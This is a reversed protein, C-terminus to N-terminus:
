VTKGKVARILKPKIEPAIVWKVRKEKTGLHRANVRLMPIKADFRQVIHAECVYADDLFLAGQLADLLNKLINDGDPRLRNISDSWPKARFWTVWLGIKGTEKTHDKPTLKQIRRQWTKCESPTYTLPGFRYPNGRMRVALWRQVARMNIRERKYPVPDGLITLQVNM